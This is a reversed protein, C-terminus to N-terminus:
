PAFVVNLQGRLVGAQRPARPRRHEFRDARGRRAAAARSRRRRARRRQSPGAGAQPHNADRGLYRGYAEDLDKPPRLKGLRDVTESLIPLAKAIYPAIETLEDPRGLAGIRKTYSACIADGRQKYAAESLRPGGDSDDGGCAALTLACAVAFATAVRTRSM